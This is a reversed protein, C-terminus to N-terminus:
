KKTQSRQAKKYAEVSSRSFAWQKGLHKAAIQGSRALRLTHTKSLGLIKLAEAVPIVDHLPGQNDQDTLAM